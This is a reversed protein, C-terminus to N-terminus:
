NNPCVKLQNQHSKDPWKFSTARREREYDICGMEQGREILM